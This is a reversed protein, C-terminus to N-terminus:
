IKLLKYIKVGGNKYKLKVARKKEIIKELFFEEKLEQLVYKNRKSFWVKYYKNNIKIIRNWMSIKNKVNITKFMKLKEWNQYVKFFDDELYLQVKM